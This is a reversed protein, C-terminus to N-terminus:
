DGSPLSVPKGERASEAAAFAARLTAMDQAFRERGDLEGRIARLFDDCSGRVGWGDAFEEQTRESGVDRIALSRGPARSVVTV